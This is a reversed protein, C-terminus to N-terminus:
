RLREFLRELRDVADDAPPRRAIEVRFGDASLDVTLRDLRARYREFHHGDPDLETSASLLDADALRRLQRYVTTRSAGCAAVLDDASLPERATRALIERACPNALLDAVSGLDDASDGTDAEDTARTRHEDDAM